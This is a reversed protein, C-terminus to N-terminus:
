LVGIVHVEFTLAQDVLPHNFDFLVERDKVAKVVGAYTGKGEPAPFEVVEGVSYQDGQTGVRDLLDQSVWQVMQPNHAGFAEGAGLTFSQRQGEAMGILCKEMPLSLEGTGLSITAPQGDFTNIVDGSTGSLRYHLTLFSDAKVIQPENSDSAHGPNPSPKPHTTSNMFGNKTGGMTSTRKPPSPCPPFKSETQLQVLCRKFDTMAQQTGVGGSKPSTKVGTATLDSKKVVFYNTNLLVWKVSEIFWNADM